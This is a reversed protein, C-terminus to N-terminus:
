KTANFSCNETIIYRAPIVYENLFILSEYQIKKTIDIIIGESVPVNWPIGRYPRWKYGKKREKTKIKLLLPFIKLNKYKAM